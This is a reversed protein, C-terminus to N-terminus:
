VGVRGKRRALYVLGLLGMGILGYTTPEPITILNAVGAIDPLSGNFFSNTAFLADILGGDGPLVTDFQYFGYPTGFGPSTASTTLTPYWFIGIPDGPGLNGSFNVIITESHSGPANLYNLSLNALVVDDGTVFNTPTPMNFTGDTTSAVFVILSGLPAITFDPSRLIGADMNIAVAANSPKIQMTLASVTLMSLLIKKITKNTKV